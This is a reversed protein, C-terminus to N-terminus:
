KACCLPYELCMRREVCPPGDAQKLRVDAVASECQSQNWPYKKEYVM